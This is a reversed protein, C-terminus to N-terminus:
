GIINRWIENILSSVNKWIGIGIQIGAIMLFNKNDFLGKHLERWERGQTTLAGSLFDMGIFFGQIAVGLALSKGMNKFVDAMSGGDMATRIGSVITNLVVVAGRMVLRIGGSTTAGMAGAIAGYAAGSFTELAVSGLNINGFGNNVIQSGIEVAGAVMGGVTAGVIVANVITASAGLAIAAGGATLVVAATIAAVILVAGFFNLLKKWWKTGNEDVNMVPNNACYAYLNLGNITEPDLYSIDDITIFRGVEPDYYRTKLFYLGTEVDYYYGRYRFPNLNGIHTRDALESGDPNLVEHNGWADYVYKVM